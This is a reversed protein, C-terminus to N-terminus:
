TAGIDINFSFDQPTTTDAVLTFNAIIWSHAPITLGSINEYLIYTTPMDPAQIILPNTPYDGINTLNIYQMSTTNIGKLFTGWKITGPTATVNPPVKVSGSTPITIYITYAYAAIAGVIISIILITVIVIKNM